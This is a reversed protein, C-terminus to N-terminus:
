SDLREHKKERREERDLGARLFKRVYASAPALTRKSLEKLRELLDEPLYFNVRKMTPM